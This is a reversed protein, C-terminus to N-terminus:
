TTPMARMEAKERLYSEKLVWERHPCLVPTELSSQLWLRCGERAQERSPDQKGVGVCIQMRFASDQVGIINIFYFGAPQLM